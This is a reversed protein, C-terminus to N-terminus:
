LHFITVNKFPFHRPSNERRSDPFTIFEPIWIPLIEWLCFLSAHCTYIKESIPHINWQYLPIGWMSHQCYVILENSRSKEPYPFTDSILMSVPHFFFMRPRMYNPSNPNCPTWFFIVTALNGCMRFCKFLDLHVFVTSPLFGAGARIYLFGTCIITSEGYWSTGSEKWRYEVVPGLREPHVKAFWLPFLTPLNCSYLSVWSIPVLFFLCGHSGVNGENKPTLKGYIQSTFGKMKWPKPTWPFINYQLLCAPSHPFM